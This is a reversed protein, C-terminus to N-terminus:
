LILYLRSRVGGLSIRVSDQGRQGSGSDSEQRAFSLPPSRSVPNVQLSSAYRRELPQEM